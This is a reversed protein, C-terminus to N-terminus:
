QRNATALYAGMLEPDAKLLAVVTEDHTQSAKMNSTRRSRDGANM